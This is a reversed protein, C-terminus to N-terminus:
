RFPSIRYEASFQFTSDAVPLDVELTLPEFLYRVGKNPVEIMERITLGRWVWITTTVNNVHRRYVKTRYGSITTDGLREGGSRGAIWESFSLTKAQPDSLYATLGDIDRKFGQRTRMDAYSQEEPTTIFIVNNIAVSKTEPFPAINEEKRERLGWRDFVLMRTGRADGSFRGFLRASAVGYRAPSGDSAHLPITDIALLPPADDLPPHNDWQLIDRRTTATPTDAAPLVGTSRSPPASEDDTRGSEKVRVDACSSVLVTALLIPLTRMM